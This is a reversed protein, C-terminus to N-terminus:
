LQPPFSSFHPADVYGRLVLARSHPDGEDALFFLRPYHAVLKLQFGRSEGRNPTTRTEIEDDTVGSNIEKKEEGPETPSIKHSYRSPWQCSLFAVIEKFPRIMANVSLFNVVVRAVTVKSDRPLQYDSLSGIVGTSSAPCRDVTVVFQPGDAAGDPRSSSAVKEDDPAYGEALVHFPCPQRPSKRKAKKRVFDTNPLSSYYRERM